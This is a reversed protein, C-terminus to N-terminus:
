DGYHDDWYQQYDEPQHYGSPTYHVDVHVQNKLNDVPVDDGTELLADHLNEVM